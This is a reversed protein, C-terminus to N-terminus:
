DDYDWWAKAIAFQASVGDEALTVHHSSAKRASRYGRSDAEEYFKGLAEELSASDEETEPTLTLVGSDDDFSVKM